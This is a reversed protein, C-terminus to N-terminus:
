AAATVLPPVFREEILRALAQVPAAPKNRCYLAIESDPLSPLGDAAGLVRMDPLVASRGFASVGLGAVVAAQVGALGTGTYAIRWRRGTRALASLATVRFLCGEGFLALQLPDGGAIGTSGAAWVLEERWLRTGGDRMGAIRRAILLDIEGRQLPRRLASALGTRVELRVAPHTQSFAALIRPLQRGAFEEAVGIIAQGRLAPQRLRGLAEDHVALLRHADDLLLRGAETLAFHRPGRDILRAGAAEELRRMHLSITSQTCNRRRAARGFGGSDAVEVFSRLLDIELAAM